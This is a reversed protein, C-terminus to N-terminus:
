GILTLLTLRIRVNQILLSLVFCKDGNSYENTPGDM